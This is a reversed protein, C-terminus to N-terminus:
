FGPRKESLHHSRSEGVEHVSTYQGTSCSAALSESAFPCLDSTHRIPHQEWGFKRKKSEGKTRKDKQTQKDLVEIHGQEIPDGFVSRVFLASSSTARM